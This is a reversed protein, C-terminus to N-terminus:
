SSMVLNKKETLYNSTEQYPAGERVLPYNKLQKQAKGSWGSELRLGASSMVM